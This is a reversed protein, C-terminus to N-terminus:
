ETENNLKFETEIIYNTENNNEKTLKFLSCTELEKKGKIAEIKVITINGIVISNEYQILSKAIEIETGMCIVDSIILYHNQDDFNNRLITRYIKNIPGIHDIYAMDLLALKSIISAIFAGNLSQFFLLTKKVETRKNYEKILNQSIAKKCLLYLGLYTLTREEIFHKINIYKPLYVNSSDSYSKTNKELYGDNGKLRKVFADEYLSQIYSDYDQTSVEDCRYFIDTYFETDQEKINKINKQKFLKLKLDSYLKECVRLLSLSIKKETAFILILDFESSANRSENIGNFDLVISSFNHLDAEISKRVREITDIKLETVFIGHNSDSPMNSEYFGFNQYVQECHLSIYIISNKTIASFLNKM